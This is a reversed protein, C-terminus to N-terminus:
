KMKARQPAPAKWSSRASMEECVLRRRRAAAFLGFFLDYVKVWSSSQSSESAANLAFCRAGRSYM